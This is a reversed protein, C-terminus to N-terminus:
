RCTAALTARQRRLGTDLAIRLRAHGHPLDRRRCANMVVRKIVQGGIIIRHPPEHKHRVASARCLDMRLLAGGAQENLEGVARIEIFPRQMWGVIPAEDIEGGPAARPPHAQFVEGFLQDGGKVGNRVNVVGRFLNPMVHSHATAAMEVERSGLAGVWRVSWAAGFTQGGVEHLVPRPQCAALM